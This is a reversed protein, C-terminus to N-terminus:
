IYRKNANNCTIRKVQVWENHRNAKNYFTYHIQNADLIIGDCYYLRSFRKLRTTKGKHADNYAIFHELVEKGKGTAQLRRIHTRVQYVLHHKCNFKSVLEEAQECLTKIKHDM